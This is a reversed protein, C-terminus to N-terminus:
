LNSGLEIRPSLVKKECLFDPTNGIYERGFRCRLCDHKECYNHSLQILAQTDAAHEPQIGAATWDRIYRNNEPKISEWLTIAKECLSDYGKYRGYVFLIPSIGNIIILDKSSKTLQKDTPKVADSSFTYHTQWYDSVKTNLLSYIIDVSDSEIIRSMNFKQSYYLTALQAIRIHPFNQPRLRLFKWVNPNIPTLSFKQRLYAYEKQLRIYYDSQKNNENLLGAQGFFIAEIQFLSDRHKGVANMPVSHAWQEFAEGNKGFGFNRAITVFLTDEWNKDLLEWRELIQHSREELREVQLVSLWSHVLLRPVNGLINKCRPSCDSRLLKDYNEKIYDPIDLQMQPIDNGDPYKLTDDVINVVHLIINDYSTDKDHGHRFWDSTRVHMEVNGVWLVGDIKVKAEKFDPGADYNYMGPNIVEVKKGDTTTLEKLPFIKHKWIYHLLQEM